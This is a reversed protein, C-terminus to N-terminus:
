AAPANTQDIGLSRLLDARTVRYANGIKLVRCPFKGQKALEYAKTRGLGYARSAVLLDFAVPLANLEEQTMGARRHKPSAM